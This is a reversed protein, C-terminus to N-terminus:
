LSPSRLAVLFERHLCCIDVAITVIMGQAHRFVAPEAFKISRPLSSRM